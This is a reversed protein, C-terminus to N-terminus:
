QSSKQAVRRMLKDMAEFVPYISYFLNKYTVYGVIVDNGYIVPSGSDGEEIFGSFFKYVFTKGHQFKDTITVRIDRKDTRIIVEDGVQLDMLAVKSPKTFDTYGIFYDYKESLEVKMVKFGNELYIPEGRYFHGVTAVLGVNTTLTLTAYSNGSYIKM